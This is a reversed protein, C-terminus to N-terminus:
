VELEELEERAHQEFRMIEKRFVVRVVGTPGNRQKGIIIEAVNSAPIDREDMDKRYIFLVVDADQEIAGSERLDSLQPRKDSRQEVARSLQSVAMIPIALEKALAKLSRSIASIEQQRNEAGKPGQMLQMYDVVIFRVREQRVIRRAKAKLELFQIAPTDDIFIPANRLEHAARTIMQVEEKSIYGTRVRQADVRAQTCLLRQVLQEKSMELSFIGCPTAKDVALYRMINLALSTKGVSPRSALIVLDGNQFGSTKEDLDQLGSPIGPVRRKRTVLDDIVGFVQNVLDGVAVFGGHIRKERIDLIKQEALDLLEDAELGESFADELIRTVVDMVKRYTSKEIVIRAHQEILAPSIVGEVLTGIYAAGGSKELEGRRALEEKVTLVDVSKNGEYLELITRYISKHHPVHFDDPQLLETGTELAAQQLMMAGLVSMEAEESYPVKRGLDQTKGTDIM